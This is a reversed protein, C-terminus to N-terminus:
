RCHRISPSTDINGLLGLILLFTLSSSGGYSMLPLPVGVVPILGTVMSANTFVYLFMMCTLGLSAFRCFFDRAQWVVRLAYFLLAIYLFLVLVGGMFGWEEGIVSFIFDTHKEPLFNLHSQTGQLFGKGWLGGSGLAITSQIIHYGAGLPDREPSLFTLIRNQQYTHLCSWLLPACAGMAGLILAMFGMPFGAVFIIAGGGGLLVLATGLDPQKLILMVPLGLLAFLAGYSRPRKWFLDDQVALYRALTLILAIKMIESPQFSMIKLDIWRQAGMGILGMFEVLLLLALGGAYLLYSAEFILRLPLVIALIMLSLGVVFHVGQKIVWPTWCGGSASYLVTLGVIMLLGLVVWFGPFLRSLKNWECFIM